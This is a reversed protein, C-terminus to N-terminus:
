ALRSFLQVAEAQNATGSKRFVGQLHNRATNLAMGANAAAGALNACRVLEVALDAERETFGFAAMLLTKSPVRVAALDHLHIVCAIGLGALFRETRPAPMVRLVYPRKGNSRTVLMEGGPRSESPPTRAIAEGILQSLRRTEPGRRTVLQSDCFGLGDGATLIAHAADNMFTPVGSASLLIIGDAKRAMAELLAAQTAARTEVVQGLSLAQEIHPALRRFARIAAQSAHGEAESSLLTLWSIAGDPLRTVAGLQYKVNLADSCAKSRPDRNIEEVDYLAHDFYISGPRVAHFYKVRPDNQYVEGMYFKAAFDEPFPNTTFGVLRGDSSHTQILSGGTGFLSAIHKLTGLWPADGMASAYLHGVAADHEDRSLM